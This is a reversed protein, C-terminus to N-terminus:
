KQKTLYTVVLQMTIGSNKLSFVNKEAQTLIAKNIGINNGKWLGKSKSKFSKEVVTIDHKYCKYLLSEYCDM